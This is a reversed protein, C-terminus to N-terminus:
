ASARGTVPKAHSTEGTSGPGKRQRLVPRATQVSPGTRLSRSPGAQSVALVAWPGCCARGWDLLAKRCAARLPRQETDAETVQCCGLPPQPGLIQHPWAQDRTSALGERLATTTPVPLSLLTSQPPTPEEPPPTGASGCTPSLWPPCLSQTGCSCGWPLGHGDLGRRPMARPGARSDGARVGETPAWLGTNM